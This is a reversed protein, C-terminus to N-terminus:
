RATKRVLLIVPVLGVLVLTIAPLSARAWEGESTMEFIKVALTDWGFPRLLLTAPMEKMVDVLVLLLGTLLGPKLLPLYVRTVVQRQSAGLSRAVEALTPTMKEFSSDIPGYAVSIFRVLYAFLLAAVGSSLLPAEWELTEFLPYILHNDIFTLSLMIGVALVSGPLAYGLRIFSTLRNMSSDKCLHRALAALFAATVTVVGAGGGLLLTHEVLEWYNSNWDDLSSLAWVLLQISPLLFALLFVTFAFGFALWRSRHTLQIRGQQKTKHTQYYRLKQRVRQESLLAFLVFIMLLSALQAATQLSFFDFWAKYIATTFTNFNFVSVAGFDALTEMLALSTGAVIAPRSMPLALKFFAKWPGMGLSRATEYHTLGQQLFSARSMMYVYPYLVLTLVVSVGFGNRIDPLWNIDGTWQHLPGGFDVFGLVVFALVYAPMALPLMLAWDLWRRGPFECMTTLWALGVGLLVVGFGVLVVLQLTNLVLELLLTDTLHQWLEADIQQWSMLIWIFPLAVFLALGWLSVRLLMLHKNDSSQAPPKPLQEAVLQHTM